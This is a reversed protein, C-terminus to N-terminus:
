DFLGTRFLRVRGQSGKKSPLRVRSPTEKAIPPGKGSDLPKPDPVSVGVAKAADRLSKCGTLAKRLTDEAELYWKTPTDRYAQPGLRFEYEARIWREIAKSLKGM